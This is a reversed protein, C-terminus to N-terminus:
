VAEVCVDLIVKLTLFVLGVHRGCCDGLVEVEYCAVLVLQGFYL